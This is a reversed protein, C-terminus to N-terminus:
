GIEGPVALRTKLGIKAAPPSLGTHSFANLLLSKACEQRWNAAPIGCHTDQFCCM